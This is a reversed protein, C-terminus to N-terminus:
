RTYQTPPFSLEFTCFCVSCVSFLTLTPTPTIRWKIHAKECKANACKRMAYAQTGQLATVRLLKMLIRKSRTICFYAVTFHEM